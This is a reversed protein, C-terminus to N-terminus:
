VAQRAAREARIEAIRKLAVSEDLEDDGTITGSDTMEKIAEVIPDVEVVEISQEEASWVVLPGGSNMDCIIGFQACKRASKTQMEEVTIKGMAKKPNGIAELAALYGSGIMAWELETGRKFYQFEYDVIKRDERPSMSATAWMTESIIILQTQISLDSYQGYFEATSFEMVFEKERADLAMLSAGMRGDGAFGIALVKEGGLTFNKPQVIKTFDNIAGLKEGFLVGNENLPFYTARSDAVLEKGDWCVTTM